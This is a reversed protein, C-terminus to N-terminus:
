RKAYRKPPGKCSRIGYSPGRGLAMLGAPIDWPSRYHFHAIQFQFPKTPSIPDISMSFITETSREAVPAHGELRYDLVFWHMKKCRDSPKYLNQNLMGFTADVFEKYSSYQLYEHVSPRVGDFM